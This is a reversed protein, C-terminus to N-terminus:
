TWCILCLCNQRASLEQACEPVGGVSSAFSLAFQRRLLSPICIYVGERRLPLPVLPSRAHPAHLAAVAAGVTVAGSGSARAVTPSRRAVPSSARACADLLLVPSGRVEPPAAGRRGQEWGKGQADAQRAPM